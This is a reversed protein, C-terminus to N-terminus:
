VGCRSTQGYAMITGNCGQLVGDVGEFGVGVPRATHWSRATIARCRITWLTKSLRTSCTVNAARPRFCRCRTGMRKVPFLSLRVSQICPAAPLSVRMSPHPRATGLCPVRDVGPMGDVEPVGKWVQCGWGCRAVRASVGQHLTECVHTACGCQDVGLLVHEPGLSRVTDFGFESVPVPADVRHLVLRAPGSVDVCRGGGRETQSVAPRVRVLVKVRESLGAHKRALTCAHARDGHRCTGAHAHASIHAHVTRAGSTARKM